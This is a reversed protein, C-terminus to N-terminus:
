FLVVAICSISGLGVRPLAADEATEDLAVLFLRNVLLDHRGHETLVAGILVIGHLQAVLPM